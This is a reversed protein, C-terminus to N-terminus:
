AGEALAREMTSVFFRGAYGPRQDLGFRAL